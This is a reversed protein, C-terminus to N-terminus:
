QEEKEKTIYIGWPNEPSRQGFDFSLLTKLAGAAKLGQISSIRDGEVLVWKEKVNVNMLAPYARQSVQREKSFRVTEQLASQFAKQSQPLIFAETSKLKEVVTEPEWNYRQKIYWDIAAKIETEVEPLATTEVRTGKTDLTLVIPERTGLIMVACWATIAILLASVSFLKLFQNSHQLEALFKPLKPLTMKVSNSM